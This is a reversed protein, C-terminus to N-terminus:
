TIYKSNQIEKNVAIWDTKKYNRFRIMSQQRKSKTNLNIVVACHDSTSFPLSVSCDAILTSDNCLVQDLISSSTVYQGLQNPRGYKKTVTRTPETVYTDLLFSRSFINLSEGNPTKPDSNFDGVLLLPKNFDNLLCEVQFTLKTWFYDTVLPPRYIVGLIFAVSNNNIDLWMIESQPDEFHFLRKARIGNRVMCSVGGGLKGIRTKYHHAYGPLNTRLASSSTLKTETFCLIDHSTLELKINDLKNGIGNLNCYFIRSSSQNVM